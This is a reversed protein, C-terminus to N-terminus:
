SGFSPTFCFHTVDVICSSIAATDTSRDAHDQHEVDEQDDDQAAQEVLSIRLKISAEVEDVTSYDHKAPQGAPPLREHQRKQMLFLCFTVIYM